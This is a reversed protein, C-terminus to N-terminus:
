RWALEEEIYDDWAKEKIPINLKEIEIRVKRTSEVRDDWPIDIVEFPEMDLWISPMNATSTIQGSTQFEHNKDCLKDYSDIEPDLKVTYPNIGDASLGEFIIGKVKGEDFLVKNIYNDPVKCNWVCFRSCTISGICSQMNSTIIKNEAWDIVVIGYEAPKGDWEFDPDDEYLYNGEKIYDKLWQKEKNLFHPHHIIRSISGSHKLLTHVNGNEERIIVTLCGSM